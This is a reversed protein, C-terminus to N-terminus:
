RRFTRRAGPLRGGLLRRGALVVVAAILAGLLAGALVDGAFHVGLYVRSVCVLGALAYAAPRARPVLMGLAVAGAAATAAHGSPMSASSPLSGLGSWLEQAFPRPRHFVTKLANAAQAAVLTAVGVLLASWPPSRRRLDHVFAALAFLVDKVWWASLLLM